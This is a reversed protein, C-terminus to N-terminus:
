KAPLNVLSVLIPTLKGTVGFDTNIEGPLGPVWNEVTEGNGVM